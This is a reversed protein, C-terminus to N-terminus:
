YEIFWRLFEGYSFWCEDNDIYVHRNNTLFSIEYGYENGNIFGKYELLDTNCLCLKM